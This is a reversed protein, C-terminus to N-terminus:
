MLATYSSFPKPRKVQRTTGELFGYKEGDQILEREWTPNIKHSFTMQPPEQVETIDHDEPTEEDPSAIVERVPEAARPVERMSETTRPNVPEEEYVEELQCRRLKKLAVEEDFTVDRSIEIHRHSPIYIRFTKSVECYGVFIGKKGSPELKNRKDKSIHIFVPCGFIKLHSVEPKKGTFMEEPTKFGLASHSLRNQVYVDAMAAEAWLCMPLDQDHIMTKVAEMITRNKREAVGNQQPNYSTTLERKIGVDRCFNIFEKSTYEGGNDLRLIKIKRESLNEILAKFEKFKSFVEDKSKLFYIWTKRSYDDIFSVYYVYGSISSSPMPGCVDSHILELAGEAKNDRKPFPNKINKGQACGNCIGEQDVKLEPLGTVAKCIYPLVKYNIHALIRHWLECSNKIAHTMATEPHGKLKYLGNEESRIVIAENLTEGKAWMLVEGDIFSVRYGKKDLTSISLLNKKLGPVYLVDKMIISNESDLKYNSEGVGKIPYQYDDGLTVKQSFKRESICSLTNKKGTMNKSAGSDILWTDEGPSVSGSLTSILVHDKIMKMTPEEDEVIHAHQRKHKRKYEERRVPCNNAKHGMKDCHYCQISSLDRGKCQGKKQFNRSHSEQNNFKNSPQPERHSERKFYPKKRGGKTHTALAQDDDRELLAECNAVRTEEQTCEEWLSEFQLKEKRGCVSQIFSDWPRALGNLTTIVFEDEDITDGIAKLQEKIESIRSFYEQIIEGKQMKTNKLQTRLNMKRNINKGEYLKRLADFMEKPTKKSSVYPILHDKISDAIIRQDRISDKQHKAKEVADEPEEVEEKIFRSLDNEALILGIRYKWACFNDIGELKEVLKTSSSM